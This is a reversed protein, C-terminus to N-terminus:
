MNILADNAYLVRHDLSFVYMFDPTNTLVTEYMRRQRESNAALRTVQLEALKQESVDLTVGDFQSPTGDAAYFTRGIARVWKVAGTTPSVTRYHTDYPTRNAISGEIAKRTPERDDPHILDYFTEITVHADPALHFHAKVLDDWELVDFPLDCYWFGVGSSGRVFALREESQRLAAEARKAQSIDRAIKSGGVIEGTADKIPSITASIPVATGDKRLRVTDFSKITEGATIRSLIEIEEQQREEPILRTISQGIMEGATYGFMVEAGANWSTIIGRLNKGIIADTSSEVIAALRGTTQDKRKIATVDTLTLVVGAVDDGQVHHPLIRALYWRDGARGEREVLHLSMLASQADDVIEPYDLDCSADSLPRGSDTSSLNFFAQASPTFQQIRLERDLFLTVIGTAAVLDDTRAATASRETM